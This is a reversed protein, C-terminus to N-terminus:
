ELGSRLSMDGLHRSFTPHAEGGAVTSAARQALEKLEEAWNMVVVVRSSAGGVDDDRVM